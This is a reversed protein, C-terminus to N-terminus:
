GNRELYFRVGAWDTAASFTEFYRDVRGEPLYAALEARVEEDFRAADDDDGSEMARRVRAELADLRTRLQEVRDAVAGHLGSWETSLVDPPRLAGSLTQVYGTLDLSGGPRDM